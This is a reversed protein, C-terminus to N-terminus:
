WARGLKAISGIILQGHINGGSWDIGKSFRVRIVKKIRLFENRLYFLYDPV